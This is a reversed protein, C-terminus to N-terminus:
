KKNKINLLIKDLQRKRRYVNVDTKNRFAYMVDEECIIGFCSRDIHYDYQNTHVIYKVAILIDTQLKIYQLIKRDADIDVKIIDYLLKIMDLRGIKETPIEQELLKIINNM